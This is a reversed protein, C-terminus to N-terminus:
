DPGKLDVSLSCREMPAPQQQENHEWNEGCSCTHIGKALDNDGPLQAM